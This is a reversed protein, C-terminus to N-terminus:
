KCHDWVLFGWIDTLLLVSFCVSLTVHRFALQGSFLVSYYHFSYVFIHLVSTMLNGWVSIIEKHKRNQFRRMRVRVERSCGGGQQAERLNGEGQRWAHTLEKM